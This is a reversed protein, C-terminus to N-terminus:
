INMFIYLLIQGKWTSLIIVGRQWTDSKLFNSLKKIGNLCTNLCYLFSYLLSIFSIQLIGHFIVYFSDEPGHGGLFGLLQVFFCLALYYKSWSPLSEQSIALSNPNKQWGISNFFLSFFILCLYIAFFIFYNNNYIPCKLTCVQTHM